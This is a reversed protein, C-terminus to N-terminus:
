EEIKWYKKEAEKRVAMAEEYTHFSGLYKNDGNVGITVEWEKIVKRNEMRRVGPYPNNTNTFKGRNINQEMKTCKRLNEWRNDHGNRNIHDVTIMNTFECPQEGTKLYWCVNHYMFCKQEFKVVMYERHKCGAKSGKKTGRKGKIWTLDGTEENYSLYERISEPIEVRLESM